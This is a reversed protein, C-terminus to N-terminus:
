PSEAALCPDSSNPQQESVAYGSEEAVQNQSQDQHPQEKWGAHIQTHLMQFYIIPHLASQEIGTQNLDSEAM